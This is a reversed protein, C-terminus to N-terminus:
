LKPLEYDDCFGWRMTLGEELFDTVGNVGVRASTIDAVGEAEAARQAVAFMPDAQDNATMETLGTAGYQIGTNYHYVPVGFKYRATVNCFAVTKATSFPPASVWAQRATGFTVKSGNEQVFAGDDVKRHAVGDAFVQTVSHYAVGNRSLNEVHTQQVSVIVDGFAYTRSQEAHVVSRLGLKVMLEDFNSAGVLFLVFSLVGGFSIASLWGLGFRRTTTTGSIENM